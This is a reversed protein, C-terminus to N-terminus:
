RVENRHQPKKRDERDEWRIVSRFSFSQVTGDDRSASISTRKWEAGKLARDERQPSRKGTRWLESIWSSVFVIAMMLGTLIITGLWFGLAFKLGVWFM